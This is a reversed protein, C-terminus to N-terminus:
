CIHQSMPCMMSGTLYDGLSYTVVGAVFVMEPLLLLILDASM